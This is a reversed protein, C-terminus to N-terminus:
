HGNGFRSTLQRAERPLNSAGKAAVKPQPASGCAQAKELADFDFM